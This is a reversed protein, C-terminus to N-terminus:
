RFFVSNYIKRVKLLEMMMTRVELDDNLGNTAVMMWSRDVVKMWSRDEVMKKMCHEMMVNVNMMKTVEALEMRTMHLELGNLGHSLGNLGHSLGNKMVKQKMHVVVMMM